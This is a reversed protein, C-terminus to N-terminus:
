RMLVRERRKRLGFRERMNELIRSPFRGELAKEFDDWRGLGHFLEAADNADIESRPGRERLDRLARDAIASAEKILGNKFFVQAALSPRIGALHEKIPTQTLEALEDKNKDMLAHKAWAGLFISDGFLKVKLGQILRNAENSRDSADLYGICDAVLQADPGSSDIIELLVDAARAEQDGQNNYAGAIRKGFEVDRHGADRWVTEVFEMAPSWEDDNDWEEDSDFCKQLVQWLVVDKSDRTLEWLRQARKLVPAGRVNRVEYFRLLERYTEPHGFSEALEEVEKLAAEPNNWMKERALQILKGLKPKILDKPVVSAFLRLYDRLLVSEDPSIGSGVRLSERMELAPETHLVFVDSCSLTDKLDDADENLTSRIQQIWSQEGESKKSEPLRSLAVM